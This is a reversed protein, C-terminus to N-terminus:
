YYKKARKKKVPQTDGLDLILVGSNDMRCHHFRVTETVTIGFERCLRYGNIRKGGYPGRDIARYANKEVALRAPRLGIVDTGRDYLLVYSDPAGLAEHTVRSLRIHGEMNLTAYLVGWRADNGAEKPCEEWSRRMNVIDVNGM